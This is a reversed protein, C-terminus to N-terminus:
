PFRVNQRASAGTEVTDGGVGHARPLELLQIAADLAAPSLHMYRQTMTLHAHGALEQIARAPAGRMALHSCFTHRLMHVGHQTLGAKRAARKVRTQIMQRTLPAGDKQCLVRPSRLHRHAQLAATLRRTLPVVRTRGGKTTTVHGNWESHRITMQRRSLDVDSRLLAMAEGCRAGADGCLLVILHTVPDLAEAAKVLGEYEEFDYFLPKRATDLKLLRITCPMKDIEGWEVAKKLTVNLVTLVNNVTKPAKTVLQRKLDQVALATIEDLRLNGLLPLLHTRFITEKAAIVSPKQREAQSDDIILPVFANLTSVEKVVAADAHAPDAAIEFARRVADYRSRLEREGWRIAAAKTSVPARVRARYVRGDPLLFRLDVEWGLQGRKRYQRVTVRM